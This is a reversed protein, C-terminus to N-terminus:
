YVLSNNDSEKANEEGGKNNGRKSVFTNVDEILSHISPNNLVELVFDMSLLYYRENDIIDSVFKDLISKYINYRFRRLSEINLRKAFTTVLNNVRSEECPDTLMRVMPNVSNYNHYITSSLVKGSKSQSHRTILRTQVLSNITYGITQFGLSLIGVDGAVPLPRSVQIVILLMVSINVLMISSPCLLKDSCIMLQFLQDILYLGRTADTDNMEERVRKKISEDKIQDYFEYCKGGVRATADQYKLSGGTLDDNESLLSYKRISNFNVGSQYADNVQVDIDLSAFDVTANSMLFALKKLQEFKNIEESSVNKSRSEDTVRKMIETLKTLIESQRSPPTEFILIALNRCTELDSESIVRTHRSTGDSRTVVVNPIAIPVDILIDKDNKKRKTGDGFSLGDNTSHRRKFCKSLEM